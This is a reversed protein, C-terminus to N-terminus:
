DRKISSVDSSALRVLNENLSVLEAPLVRIEHDDIQIRNQCTRCCGIHAELEANDCREPHNAFSEIVSTQPCTHPM